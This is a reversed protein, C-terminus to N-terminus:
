IEKELEPIAGLVNIELYKEVDEPTRIKDNLIFVLFLIGCSLLVGIVAGLMVNRVTHINSPMDAIKGYDIPKAKVETTELVDILYDEFSEAVANAIIASLKANPTNVTVTMICTNSNTSVSIYEMLAEASIRSSGTVESYFQSFTKGNPAACEPITNLANSNLFNAVQELYTLTVFEKASLAYQKSLTWDIESSTTPTSTDGENTIFIKSSSTFSEKIFINSYLFSIIVAFITVLIVIWAKYLIYQFADKLNIELEKKQTNNSDM